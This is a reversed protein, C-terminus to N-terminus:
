ASLYRLRALLNCEAKSFLSPVSESGGCVSATILDASEICCNEGGNWHCKCIGNREGNALIVGARNDNSFGSEHFSMCLIM